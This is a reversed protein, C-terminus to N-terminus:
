IPSTEVPQVTQPRRLKELSRQCQAIRIEKVYYVSTYTMGISEPIVDPFARLAVVAM